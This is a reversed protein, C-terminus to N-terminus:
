DFTGSAKAISFLFPDTTIIKVMKKCKKRAKEVVKRGRKTLAWVEKAPACGRKMRSLPGFARAPRAKIECEFCLKNKRYTLEGCKTCADSNRFLNAHAACCYKEQMGTLKKGCFACVGFLKAYREYEM